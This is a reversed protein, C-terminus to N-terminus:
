EEFTLQFVALRDELSSRPGLLLIMPLGIARERRERCRLKEVSHV